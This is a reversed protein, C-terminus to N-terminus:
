TCTMGVLAHSMLWCTQKQPPMYQSGPRHHIHESDYGQELQAWNDFKCIGAFLYPMQACDLGTIQKISIFYFFFESIWPEM